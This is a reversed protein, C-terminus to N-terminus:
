LQLSESRGQLESSGSLGSVIKGSAYLWLRRGQAGRLTCPGTVNLMLSKKMGLVSTLRSQSSPNQAERQQFGAVRDGAPHKRCNLLNRGGAPRIELVRQTM